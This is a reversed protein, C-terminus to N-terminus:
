GDGKARKLRGRSRRGQDIMGTVISRWGGFSFARAVMGDYAQAAGGAGLWASAGALPAMSCPLLARLLGRPLVWGLDPAGLARIVLLWAPVCGVWAGASFFGTKGALFPGASM